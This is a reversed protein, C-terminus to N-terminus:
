HLCTKALPDQPWRNRDDTDVRHYGIDKNYCVMLQQEELEKRWGFLADIDAQDLTVGSNRRQLALWAGRHDRSNMHTVSVNNYDITRKPPLTLSPQAGRNYRDPALRSINVAWDDLVGELHKQLEEQEEAPIHHLEFISSWAQSAPVTKISALNYGAQRLVVTEDLNLARALAECSRRKPRAPNEESVWNSIRAPDVGALAAVDTQRLNQEELQGRLFAAFNVAWNKAADTKRMEKSDTSESLHLLTSTHDTEIDM